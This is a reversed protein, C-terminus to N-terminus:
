AGPRLLFPSVKTWSWPLYQFCKHRDPDMNIGADQFHGAGSRERNVGGHRKVSEATALEPAKESLLRARTLLPSAM